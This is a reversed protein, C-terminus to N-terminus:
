PFSQVSGDNWRIEIMKVIAQDPVGRMISPYAKGVRILEEEGTQPEFFKLGYDTEFAVIAHAIDSGEFYVTVYGCRINERTAAAYVKEAFYTCVREDEVYEDKWSRVEALFMKVGLLLINTLKSEDVIETEKALMSELEARTIELKCCPNFCEYKQTKSNWFLSKEKCKPNPCRLLRPATGAKEDFLSEIDGKNKERLGEVLRSFDIEYKYPHRKAEDIEKGCALCIRKDGFVWFNNHPCEKERM